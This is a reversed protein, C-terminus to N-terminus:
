PSRALAQLRAAVRQPDGVLQAVDGQVGGRRDALGQDPQVPAVLLRPGVQERGAVGPQPQPEVLQGGHRHAVESVVVDLLAPERLGLAHEGIRQPEALFAVDRDAAHPLAPHLGPQPQQLAAPRLGLLVREGHERGPVDRQAPQPRVEHEPQEGGAPVRGRLVRVEVLQPPQRRLEVDGAHQGRDHRREGLLGPDGAPGIGPEVLREHRRQGAQRARAPVLQAPPHSPEGGGADLM